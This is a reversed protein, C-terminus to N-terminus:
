PRDRVTVTPHAVADWAAPVPRDRGAQEDVVDSRLDLEQALHEAGHTLGFQFPRRLDLDAVRLDHDRRGRFTIGERPKKVHVDVVHIPNVLLGDAGSGIRQFRRGVLRVAIPPRHDAVREAVDELDGARYLRGIAM